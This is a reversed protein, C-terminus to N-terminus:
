FAAYKTPVRLPTCAVEYQVWHLWGLAQVVEKRDAYLQADVVDSAAMMDNIYQLAQGWRGRRKAITLFLPYTAKTVKGDAFALYEDVTDELLQLNTTKVDRDDALARAKRLLADLMWAKHQEMEAKTAAAGPADVAKSQRGFFAAVDDADIQALVTDAAAVIEGLSATRRAGTREDLHKLRTSLLPIWAPFAKLLTPALM